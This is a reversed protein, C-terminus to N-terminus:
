AATQVVFSDLNSERCLCFVGKKREVEMCARPGAEELTFLSAHLRAAGDLTSTSFAYLKDGSVM